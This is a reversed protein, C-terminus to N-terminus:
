SFFFVPSSKVLCISFITIVTHTSILMQTTNHPSTLLLLSSYPPSHVPSGVCKPISILDGYYRRHYWAGPGRWHERGPPYPGAPAPLRRLGGRGGFLVAGRGGRGGGCWGHRGSLVSVATWRSVSLERQNQIVPDVSPKKKILYVHFVSFLAFIYMCIVCYRRCVAHAQM